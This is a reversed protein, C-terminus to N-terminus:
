LDTLVKGPTVEVLIIREVGSDMAINCADEIHDRLMETKWGSAISNIGLALIMEDYGEALAREFRVQTQGDITEVGLARVITDGNKGSADVDVLAPDLSGSILTPYLYDNSAVISDGIVIARRDPVVPADDVGADLSKFPRAREPLEGGYCVAEFAEIELATRCAREFIGAALVLAGHELGVTREAYREMQWAIDVLTERATPEYYEIVGHDLEVDPEYTNSM